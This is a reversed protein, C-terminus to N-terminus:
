FADQYIILKIANPNEVFFNNDYIYSSDKIDQIIKNKDFTQDSYWQEAFKKNAILMKLTDFLPVYYFKSQRNNVSIERTSVYNFFKKYYKRRCYRSRLKGYQSNHALEFINENISEEPINVLVYKKLNQLILSLNLKNIDMIGDIM